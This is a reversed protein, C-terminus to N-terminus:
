KRNDTIVYLDSALVDKSALSASVMGGGGILGHFFVSLSIIM